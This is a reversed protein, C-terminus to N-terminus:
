FDLFFESSVSKLSQKSGTREEFVYLTGDKNVKFTWDIKETEDRRRQREYVRVKVKPCIECVPPVWKGKVRQPVDCTCENYQVQGCHM